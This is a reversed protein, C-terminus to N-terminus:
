QDAQRQLEIMNRQTDRQNAVLATNGELVIAQQARIDKEAVLQQAYKYQLDVERQLGQLRAVLMPDNAAQAAAIRDQLQSNIKIIESEAMRDRIVESIRKQEEAAAKAAREAEREAKSAGSSKKGTAASLTPIAFLKASSGAQQNFNKQAAINENIKQLIVGQLQVARNSNPDNPGM